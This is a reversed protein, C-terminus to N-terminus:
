RVFFPNIHHLPCVVRALPFSTVQFCSMLHISSCYHRGSRVALFAGGIQNAVRNADHLDGSALSVLFDNVVALVFVGVRETGLAPLLAGLVHCRLPPLLDGPFGRLLPPAASRNCSTCSGYIVVQALDMLRQADRWRHLSIDRIRNAVEIPNDFQDIARAGLGPGRPGYLFLRIEHDSRVRKLRM